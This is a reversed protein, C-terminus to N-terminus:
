RTEAASKAIEESVDSVTQFVPQGDAPGFLMRANLFANAHSSGMWGTGILGIRIEKM